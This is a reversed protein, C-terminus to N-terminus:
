SDLGARISAIQAEITRRGKDSMAVQLVYLKVPKGTARSVQAVLQPYAYSTGLGTTLGQIDAAPIFVSRFNRYRVGSRDARVTATSISLGLVVFVAGGTGTTVQGGLDDGAFAAAILLLGAVAIVLGATRALISPRLVVPGGDTV